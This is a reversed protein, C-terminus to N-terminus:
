HDRICINITQSKATSMSMYYTYTYKIYTHIYIVKKNM